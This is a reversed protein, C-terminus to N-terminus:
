ITSPLEEINSSPSLLSSLVNMQSALCTLTTENPLSPFSHLSLSQLRTMGSLSNAFAEPSFYGSLPFEPLQLNVLDKSPLLSSRSHPSHWGVLISLVTVSALARAFPAPLPIRTIELFYLWNKLNRFRGLFKPFRELSRALLPWSASSTLV